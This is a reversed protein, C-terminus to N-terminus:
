TSKYDYTHRHHKKRILTLLRGFQKVVWNVFVTVFAVCLVFVDMLLSVCIISPYLLVSVM